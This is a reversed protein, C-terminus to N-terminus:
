SKSSITTLMEPFHVLNRLIYFKRIVERRQMKAVRAVKEKVLAYYLNEVNRLVTQLYEDAFLSLLTFVGSNFTLDPHPFKLCTCDECSFLLNTNQQLTPRSKSQPFSPFYSNVV